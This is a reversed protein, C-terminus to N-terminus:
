FIQVIQKASVMIGMADNTTISDKQVAMRRERRQNRRMLIPIRHIILISM